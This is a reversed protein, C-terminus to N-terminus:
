TVSGRRGAVVAGCYGAVAVIICDLGSASGVGIRQFKSGKVYSPRALTDADRSVASTGLQMTILRVM